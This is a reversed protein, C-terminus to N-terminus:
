LPEERISRPLVPRLIDLLTEWSHASVRQLPHSLLSRLGQPLVSSCKWVTQGRTYRQYGCFLEDGGDGSLSVTVDQRALKSVLYTPIQSSDAFPEDYMQPLLPIVDLAQEPTVYLETHDTKLHKAVQKAYEAE